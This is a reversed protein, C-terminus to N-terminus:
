FMKICALTAVTLKHYPNVPIKLWTEWHAWGIVQVFSIREM